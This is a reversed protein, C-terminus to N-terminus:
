WPTEHAQSCRSHPGVPAHASRWPAPGKDRRGHHPQVFATESLNTWRAVRQMAEEDLESGDLVVAVPNGLCPPASFVGAQAFPRPRPMTM